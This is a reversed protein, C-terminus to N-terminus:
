GKADPEFEAKLKLYEERRRNMNIEKYRAENILREQREVETEPSVYYLYASVEYENGDVELRVHDRWEEPVKEQIIEDIRNRCTTWGDDEAEQLIDSVDYVKRRRMDRDWHNFFKVESM